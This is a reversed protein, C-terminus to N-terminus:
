IGKEVFLFNVMDKIDQDMPRDEIVPKYVGSLSDLLEKLEPSFDFEINSEKSVYYAQLLGMTNIAACQESMVLQDRFDRAAITGMSVVDQNNKETSRSLVAASFSNKIVETTLASVTIQMAKYGHNILQNDGLSPATLNETLWSVQTCEMLYAMQRDILNTVTGMATKLNDMVHAIHGGFFHGGNLVMGEKDLVVPNDNTSNIEINVVKGAWEISDILVGLVQPTCRISYKDQIAGVKAPLDVKDKKLLGRIMSAAEIQGPHPKRLHLEEAFPSHSSEFLEVMLATNFAVIKALQKARIITLSAIATMVSTGNMVSLAEKEKFIYPKIKLKELVDSAKCVKGEYYVDRRGSLAAAIYSLPTLDGSAGVSGQAPICPIIRNKIFCDFSELLEFSIGSSGQALSVLRVLLSAACEEESLIPGVGCGHFEILNKQLDMSKQTDFRNTSSGGFGTTVGYIPCDESILDMFYKHNSEISSKYADDKSLNYESQKNCAFEAIDDIDMQNFSSIEVM